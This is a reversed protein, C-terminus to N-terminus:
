STKGMRIQRGKGCKGNQKSNLIKKPIKEENLRLIHCVNYFDLFLILM